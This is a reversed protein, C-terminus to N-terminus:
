KIGYIYRMELNVLNYDSDVIKSHNRLRKLYLIGRLQVHKDMDEGVGFVAM